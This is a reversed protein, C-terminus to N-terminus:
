RPCKCGSPTSRRRHRRLAQPEVEHGNSALVEAIKSVIAQPNDIVARFADAAAPDNQDLNDLFANVQCPPGTRVRQGPVSALADALSITV